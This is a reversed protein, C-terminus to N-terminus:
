NAQPHEAAPDSSWTGPMMPVTPASTFSDGALTTLGVAERTRSKTATGAFGLPGAGGSSATSSSLDLDPAEPSLDPSGDMTLFEDRYGRNKVDQRRRRRAKANASAAAAAAAAASIGSAPASATAKSHLNPGLVPGPDPGGILYAFASTAPAPAPSPAPATATTQPPPSPASPPAGATTVTPSVSAVTVLQQEAAAAPVEDVLEAPVEAIGCLALSLVLPVSAAPGAVAAYLPTGMVAFTFAYAFVFFLPMWTVIATSPSAAFDSILQVVTGLPNLLLQKLVAWMSSFHESWAFLDAIYDHFTIGFITITDPRPQAPEATAGTVIQPSPSSPQVAAVAATSIAQYVTMVTAAQIWMRTYDAENLAIPITNLGFFNTAVLVGHVTHNAALEALTPMTALAASYAAAAAEHQAAADASSATNQTLWALYPVHAAAYQAATPGDWAGGQVGALIAALEAAAAAYEDSLAAWASAAALLAGPGPGSSLLTSHVEPPAAMFVPATM